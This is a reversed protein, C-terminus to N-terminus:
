NGGMQVACVNTPGGTALCTLGNPCEGTTAGPTTCVITCQNMSFCTPSGPGAYGTTCEAVATCMPSCYGRMGSGMPVPQVVCVDNTPCDPESGGCLTGLNNSSTSADVSTAADTTTSADLM